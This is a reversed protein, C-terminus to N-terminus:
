EGKKSEAEPATPGRFPWTRAWRAFALGVVFFAAALGGLLVQERGVEWLPVLALGALVFAVNYVVDYAAFVRGRVADPAARGVLADVLVKLLQFAFGAVGVGAVLVDDPVQHALLRHTGIHERCESM